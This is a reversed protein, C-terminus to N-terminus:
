SFAKKLGEEFSLPKYGLEKKAKEIVFGTKHPRKATALLINFRM